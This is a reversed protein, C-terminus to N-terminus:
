SGANCADAIEVLLKASPRSPFVYMPPEVLRLFEIDRAALDRDFSEPPDSSVFWVPRFGCALIGHGTESPGRAVGWDVDAEFFAYAERDRFVRAIFGPGSFRVAQPDDSLVELAWGRRPYPLLSLTEGRRTASNSM